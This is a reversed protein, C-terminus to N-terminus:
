PQEKETKRIVKELRDLADATKERLADTMAVLTDMQQKLDPSSIKSEIHRKLETTGGTRQYALISIILAVVAILLTVAEM